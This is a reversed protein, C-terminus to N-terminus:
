VIQGAVIELVDWACYEGQIHVCVPAGLGGCKVVWM